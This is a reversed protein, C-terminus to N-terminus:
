APSSPREIGDVVELCQVDSRGTGSRWGVGRARVGAAWRVRWPTPLVQAFTDIIIGFVINLFVVVIILFFAFDFLIRFSNARQPLLDGLGGGARLGNLLGFAFCQLLSGCVGETDVAHLPPSPTSPGSQPRAPPDPVTATLSRTLRAHGPLCRDFGPRPKGNGPPLPPPPPHRGPRRRRIWGSWGVWM